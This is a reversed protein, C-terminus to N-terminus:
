KYAFFVGSMTKTVEKRIIVPLGRDKLFDYKCFTGNALDEHIATMTINFLSKGYTYGNKTIDPGYKGYREKYKVRGFTEFYYQESLEKAGYRLTDIESDRAIKRYAWASPAYNKSVKYRKHKFLVM